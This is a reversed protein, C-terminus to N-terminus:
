SPRIKFVYRSSTQNYLAALSHDIVSGALEGYQVDMSGPNGEDSQAVIQLLKMCKM